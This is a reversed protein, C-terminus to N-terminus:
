ALACDHSHRLHLEHSDVIRIGVLIRVKEVPRADFGDVIGAHHDALVAVAAVLVAEVIKESVIRRQKWRAGNAIDRRGPDVIDPLDGAVIVPTWPDEAEDVAAADVGIDLSRARGCGIYSRDVIRTDHDTVVTVALADADVTETGGTGVLVVESLDVNRTGLVRDSEADVIRAIDNAPERVAIRAEVAEDIVITSERHQIIWERGLPRPNSGDFILALDDTRVAIVGAAGDEQIATANEGCDRVDVAAFIESDARDIIAAHDGAAIGIRCAIMAKDAKWRDLGIIEIAVIEGVHEPAARVARQ